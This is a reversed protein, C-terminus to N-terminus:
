RAGGARRAAVLERWAQTLERGNTRCDAWDLGFGLPIARALIEGWKGAIDAFLPADEYAGHLQGLVCRCNDNVDLRDVIREAWGPEHEDLWAAGAAVRDAVTSVTTTIM